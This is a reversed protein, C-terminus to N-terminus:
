QESAWGKQELAKQAARQEAEQKAMGEGEAIFEEGLLVGVTFQKNHDPGTEKLVRYVPTICLIEQAKEQFHSKADQWLRRSLINDLRHFLNSAIFKKAKGYGQDLYLAGILAEFIDALIYQRAKGTDRAEGRSLLLFDNMDIERAARSISQTNVLAARYSTLDGDTKNPFKKFLYETVALELVADGLFALRENHQLLKRPNENLYSRHTFAQKLLSKNKFTVGIKQEFLSFDVTRM